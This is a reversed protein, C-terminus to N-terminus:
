SKRIKEELEEVRKKLEVEKGLWEFTCHVRFEENWPRNPHNILSCAELREILDQFSDVEAAIAKEKNM